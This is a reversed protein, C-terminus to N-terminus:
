GSLIRESSHEKVVENRRPNGSFDLELVEHPRNGRKGVGQPWQGIPIPTWCSLEANANTFTLM